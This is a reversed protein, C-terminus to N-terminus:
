FHSVVSPSNAASELDLHQAHDSAQISSVRKGRTSVLIVLFENTPERSRCVSMLYILCKSNTQGTSM